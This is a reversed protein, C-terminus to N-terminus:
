KRIAMVRGLCDTVYINAKDVCPRNLVPMGITMSKLVKGDRMDLLYLRGDNAAVWLNEGDFLPTASVSPPNRYAYDATPFIAAQPTFRWRDKGTAPDFAGLGDKSSDILVLGNPLKVPAAISSYCLYPKIERQLKGSALDIQFLKNGDGVLWVSNGDVLPSSNAFLTKYQWLIRGTKLDHRYLGNLRSIVLLSDGALALKDVAPTREEVQWATNRWLTKGDTSSIGRLHRGYGGAVIGDQYVIASASPSVIMPDSPNLWLQRGTAADVAHINARTDIAFIREGDTAFNNRIGYGTRYFWVIRGTTPELAYLGGKEANEDDCVGVVLLGKVLKLDCMAVDAPLQALWALRNEEKAAIDFERSFEKGYMTKATLIIRSDNNLKWNAKGSWGAVSIRKLAVSEANFKATVSVIEDGGDYADAIITLGDASKMTIGEQPTILALHKRANTFFVTSDMKDTSRNIQLVRFSPPFCGSGGKNTAAVCFAKRGSPYKKVINMHKHAYINCVFKEDDFNIDGSHTAMTHGTLDPLDHSIMIKKKDPYRKCLAKLWDGCDLMDYLIPAGWSKYIPIVIFLYGGLEFSQWWPGMISLYPCREGYFGKGRFDVDHNGCAYVVPRKMTAANVYDRQSEMGLPSGASIDGANVFLDVELHNDIYRKIEDIFYLNSSEWDSIGQTESDGIVVMTLTEKTVPRADELLFHYQTCGPTLRHWFRTVDATYRDNRQVYITQAKPHLELQYRGQADTVAFGFGDSVLMGPIGPEDAAPWGDHNVDHRVIGKVTIAASEFCAMLLLSVSLLLSLRKISHKM